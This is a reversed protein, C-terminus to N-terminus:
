TVGPLCSQKKEEGFLCFVSFLFLSLIIGKLRKVLELSGATSVLPCLASSADEMGHMMILNFFLDFSYFILRCRIIILQIKRRGEQNTQTMSLSPPILFYFLLRIEGQWKLTGKFYESFMNWVGTFYVRCLLQTSPPNNKYLFCAKQKM